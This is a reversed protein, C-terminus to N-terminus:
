QAEARLVENLHIIGDVLLHHLLRQRPQRQRGVIAHEIQEAAHAVKGQRDGAARPLHHAHFTNGRQHRIPLIVCLYIRQIIGLEKM